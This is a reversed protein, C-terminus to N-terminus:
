PRRAEVAAEIAELCVQNLSSGERLAAQRADQWLWRPMRVTVVMERREDCDLLAAELRASAADDEVLPLAERAAAILERHKNRERRQQDLNGIVELRRFRRIEL